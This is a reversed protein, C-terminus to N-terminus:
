IAALLAECAAADNDAAAFGVDFEQAELSLEETYDAVASREKDTLNASAM